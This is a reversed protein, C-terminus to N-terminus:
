EFAGLDALFRSFTPTRYEHVYALPNEPAEDLAYGPRVVVKQDRGREFWSRKSEPLKDRQVKEHYALVTAFLDEADRVTEFHAKANVLHPEWELLRANAGIRSLGDRLARVLKPSARCTALEDAGILAGQASTSLYRLWNFADLTPRCFAEYDDIASLLEQLEFSAKHGLGRLLPPEDAADLPGGVAKLVAILAGVKEPDGSRNALLQLLIRRENMGPRAPDLRVSIEQWFASPQYSTHGQEMGQQVARRLRDRFAIGPGSGDLFGALEQDKAWASVLEYGDSDLRGEETLVGLHRALRRFVGSCGFVNPTKLYASASVQRQNRLAREVKQVGPM